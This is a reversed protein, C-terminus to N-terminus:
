AAVGLAVALREVASLWGGLADGPRDLDPGSPVGGPVNRAEFDAVPLYMLCKAPNAFDGASLWTLGAPFVGRVFLPRQERDLQDWAFLPSQLLRRGFALAPECNGFPGTSREAEVRADEVEVVLRGRERQYTDEDIAGRYIFAHTLRDLQGQLALLRRRAAEALARGAAAESELRERVIVEFLDFVWPAVALRELLGLFAGELREARVHVRCPTHTCRYYALPTRRGGKHAWYAVLPLGCSCAAVTRLPFDPTSGTTYARREQPRSLARQVRQFLDLPVIAPHRGDVHLGWSAVDLRGAYIPNSLLRHLTTKGLDRGAPTRLGRRGLEQRVDEVSVLGSAVREFALRILPAREPDPEIWKERGDESQRNTYGLPARWPWRGRELAERMGAVTKRRRVQNDWRNVAAIVTELMEDEPSEGMQQTAARLVVGAEQLQRRILLHDLTNRALRSLDYVVVAGVKGRARELYALMAQLQPRDATKASEGEERFIRDVEWGQRECYERGAKEQVDLSLNRVQEASSVRTYLVARM